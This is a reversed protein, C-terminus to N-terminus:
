AAAQSLMKVGYDTLRWYSTRATSLTPRFSEILGAKRLRHREPTERVIGPASRESIFRLLEIEEATLVAPKRHTVAM